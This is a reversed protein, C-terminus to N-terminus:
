FIDIQDSADDAANATSFFHRILILSLIKNVRNLGSLVHRYVVSLGPFLFFRDTLCAM